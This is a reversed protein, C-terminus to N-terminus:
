NEKDLVKKFENTDTGDERERSRYLSTGERKKHTKSASSPEKIEKEDVFILGDTYRENM